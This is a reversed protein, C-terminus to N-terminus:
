FPVSRDVIEKILNHAKLLAAEDKSQMDPLYEMLLDLRNLGTLITQAESLLAHLMQQAKAITIKEGIEQRSYGSLAVDLLTLTGSFHDDLILSVELFPYKEELSRTVSAIDTVEFGYRDKFEFHKNILGFPIGLKDLTRVVVAETHTLNGKKSM